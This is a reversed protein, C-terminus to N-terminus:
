LEYGNKYAKKLRKDKPPNFGFDNKRDSQGRKFALM